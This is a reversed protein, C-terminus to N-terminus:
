LSRQPAASVPRRASHLDFETLDVGVMATSDAGFLATFKRRPPALVARGKCDAVGPEARSLSAFRKDVGLGGRLSHCAGRVTQQESTNLIM